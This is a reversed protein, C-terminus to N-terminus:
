HSNVTFIGELFKLKLFQEKLNKIYQKQFNHETQSFSHCKEYFFEFPKHDNLGIM